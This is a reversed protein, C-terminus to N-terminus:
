EGALTKVEEESLANHKMSTQWLKHMVDASKKKLATVGDKGPFLLNGAEDCITRSLLESRFDPIPKGENEVLALEYSDREGVSMMRLCVDGGLAPCPVTIIRADVAREIQERTLPM